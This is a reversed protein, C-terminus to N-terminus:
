WAWCDFSISTYGRLAQKVGSYVAGDFILGAHGVIRWWCQDQLAVNKINGDSANLYANRWPQVLEDWKTAMAWYRVNGISDDGANLTNLYTSGQAMQNCATLGICNGFLFVSAINAVSTGYAPSGLTILKDVKASGGFSKVYDRSVLGGESHGILDVKAAQTQDIVADVYPAFAEASQHIDGLGLGPLQFIYVRYGDNRLRAALPEYAFGPGAMGAVLIVPNKTSAASASGIPVAMMTLVTILMVALGRRMRSM